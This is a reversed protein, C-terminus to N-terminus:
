RTGLLGQVQFNEVPQPHFLLNVLWIVQQQQDLLRLMNPVRALTNNEPPWSKHWILDADAYEFTAAGALAPIRWVPQGEEQYHFQIEGAEDEVLSWSVEVPLGPEAALAQMSTGAFSFAEGRFAKADQEYAIMAEVSESFWTYSTLEASVRGQFRQVAQYQGLFYGVGQILLTSLLAVLLFVVLMELLTLGTQNDGTKNM